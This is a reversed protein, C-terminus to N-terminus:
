KLAEGGKPNTRRVPKIMEPFQCQYGSQQEFWFSLLRSQKDREKGGDYTRDTTSNAVAVSGNQVASDGEANVIYDDQWGDGERAQVGATTNKGLRGPKGWKKELSQLPM